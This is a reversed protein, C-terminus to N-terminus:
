QEGNTNRKKEKSSLCIVSGDQPSSYHFFKTIFVYNILSSFHNSVAASTTGEQIRIMSCSGFAM